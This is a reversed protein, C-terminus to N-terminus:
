APEQDRARDGARYLQGLSPWRKRRAGPEGPSRPPTRPHRPLENLTDRFLALSGRWQGSRTVAGPLRFTSRQDAGAILGNMAAVLARLPISISRLVLSHSSRGAWYPGPLSRTPSGPRRDPRPSWRTARPSRTQGDGRHRDLRAARRPRPQAPPGAGLAFQRHGRQDNTYAMSRRAPLSRTSRDIRDASQRHAGAETGGAPRSGEGDTQRAAAAKQEALTLQSVALDTNWYRLEGFPSARRRGRGPDAIALM